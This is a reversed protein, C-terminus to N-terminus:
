EASHNENGTKREVYLELVDNSSLYTRYITYRKGNYELIDEDKYDYYFVRMRFEPNFGNRGGDFFESATVSTVNAYVKRKEETAIQVGYENQTFTQKILYIPTSRDM